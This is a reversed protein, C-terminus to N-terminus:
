LELEQLRRFATDWPLRRGADRMLNYASEAEIITMLGHHILEEVIWITGKVEVGESQALSRLALDGTLLPCEEQKALSLAFCDNRSPGTAKEALNMAYRMTESTLEGLQLGSELLNSHQEELEDYFLIDPVKFSHPLSFILEVLGGEEMDIIINADSILILM